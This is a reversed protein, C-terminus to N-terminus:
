ALQQYVIVANVRLLVEKPETGRRHKKM